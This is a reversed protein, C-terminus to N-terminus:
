DEHKKRATATEPGAPLAVEGIFSSQRPLEVLHAQEPEAMSQTVADLGVGAGHDAPTPRSLDGPDEECQRTGDGHEKCCMPTAGSSGGSCVVGGGKALCSIIWSDINHGDPLDSRDRICDLWGGKSQAGESLGLNEDNDTADLACGALGLILLSCVITLLKKM